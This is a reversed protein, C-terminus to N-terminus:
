SVANFADANAYVDVISLLIANGRKSWVKNDDQLMRGPKNELSVNPINFSIEEAQM